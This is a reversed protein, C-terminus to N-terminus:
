TEPAVDGFITDNRLSGITRVDLNALTFPNKNIELFGVM